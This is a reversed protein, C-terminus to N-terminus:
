KWKWRLFNSSTRRRRRPRLRNRIRVIAVKRRRRRRAEEAREKAEWSSYARVTTAERECCLCWRLRRETKFKKELIYINYWISDIIRPRSRDRERKRERDFHANKRAHRRRRKRESTINANPSSKNRNCIRATKVRNWVCNRTYISFITHHGPKRYKKSFKSNSNSRDISWNKVCLACWFFFKQFFCKSVVASQCLSLSRTFYISDAGRETELCACKWVKRREANKVVDSSFVRTWVCESWRKAITQVGDARARSCSLFHPPKFLLLLLLLLIM